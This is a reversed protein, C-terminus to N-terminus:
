TTGGATGAENRRRALCANCQVVCTDVSPNGAPTQRSQPSSRGSTSGSCWRRRRRSDKTRRASTAVVRETCPAGEAALLAGFSLFQQVPPRQVDKELCWGRKLGCCLIAVRTRTHAHGTPGLDGPSRFTLLAVQETAKYWSQERQMHCTTRAQCPPNPARVRGASGECCRGLCTM